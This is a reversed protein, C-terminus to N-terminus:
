LDDRLLYNGNTSDNSDLEEDDMDYITEVVKYETPQLIDLNDVYNEM